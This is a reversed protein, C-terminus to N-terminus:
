MTAIGYNVTNEMFSRIVSVHMKLFVHGRVRASRRTIQPFIMARLFPVIPDRGDRTAHVRIEVLVFETEVAFMQIMRHFDLARLSNVIQEVEELPVSASTLQPVPVMDLAFLLMRNILVMVVGFRVPHDLINLSAFVSIRLLFIAVTHDVIWLGVEEGAKLFLRFTVIHARGGVTANVIKKPLVRETNVVCMGRTTANEEVRTVVSLANLVLGDATATVRTMLLATEREM